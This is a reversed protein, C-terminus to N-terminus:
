DIVFYFTYPIRVAVADGRVNAPRFRLKKAALAALRDLEPHLRDVVEVADVRGDRGVVIALVVKGQIGRRKIEDPFEPKVEHILRPLETVGAVPVPADRDVGVTQPPGPARPGPRGTGDRAGDRSGTPTGQPVAIGASSTATGELNIGMLPPPEAPKDVQPEAPPPAPPTPKDPEPPKKPPKKKPPPPPDPQVVPERPTEPEPVPEPDPPPAPPKEPEPPPEPPTQVVRVEVAVRVKTDEPPPEYISLGAALAGHLAVSCLVVAIWLTRRPRLADLNPSM